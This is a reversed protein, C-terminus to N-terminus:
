EGSKWPKPAHKEEIIQVKSVAQNANLGFGGLSKVLRSEDLNVNFREKAKGVILQATNQNVIKEFDQKAQELWAWFNKELNLNRNKQMSWRDAFDEEPRVPNPIRPSHSQVFSGMCNLINTLASSLDPEGNYARAALTTIIMSIPKLDPNDEFMVDRHRKLLQVVQQLPSKKKFVPVTELLAKDLRALERSTRMRAEFWQAFGEPNSVNWDASIEKFNPERDDTIVVTSDAAESPNSYSSKQLSDLILMRRSQEEPIAPVIDAHFKLEDQYNLRWCRHKSELKEQIQRAVRYAKLEEGVLEKLEKQTHSSKTVGNRLKCTLDVDYEEEANLPRIVTGFRFSGQPFVHPDFDALSSNDRCFWDGIDKYRSIAKEYASDPVALEELMQALIINKIDISQM